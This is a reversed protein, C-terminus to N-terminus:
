NTKEPEDQKNSSSDELVQLFGEHFDTLAQEKIKSWDEKPKSLERSSGGEEEMFFGMGHLNIWRQDYEENNKRVFDIAKEVAEKFKDPNALVYEYIPPGLHTNVITMADGVTEDACRETDYGVRILGVFFWFAAQDKKGQKMLEYAMACLLGPMYKNPSALIKSIVKEKKKRPGDKLLVETMKNVEKMDIQAYVGTPKVEIQRGIAQAQILIPAFVSVVVAIIIKKHM